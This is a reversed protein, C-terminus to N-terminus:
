PNNEPSTGGYTDTVVCPFVYIGKIKSLTDAGITAGISLSPLRSLRVTFKLRILRVAQSACSIKSKYSGSEEM